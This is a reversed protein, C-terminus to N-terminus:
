MAVAKGLQPSLDTHHHVLKWQGNERRFISTARHSVKVMKGDPGNNEGEEVCVVYGLNEGAHIVLNNCTIRGGLKMEAVKKFEPGVAAWGNMNDDFPGRYSIDSQHSWIAEIPAFEGTFMANLATYFQDNADRVEKEATAITTIKDTPTVM